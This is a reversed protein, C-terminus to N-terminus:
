LLKDMTQEMVKRMGADPMTGYMAGLNDAVHHAKTTGPIPCTAAPHSIIYKLFIQGWSEANIEPAWAPLAQGKVASFLKGNGFPRNVLVAIGKEQALPLLREEAARDAMSYNVQIFDLEHERMVSEIDDHQAVRHTTVGVYRFRGGSKWEQMQPLQEETGRLNHVQMLEIPSGLREFSGEMREIGDSADERDVKTAMFVKDRIGLKSLLHGLVEESNGYNPSTDLLSGGMEHFMKLTERLPQMESSTVDGRYRNTGLGVCPVQQGTSPITMTHATGKAALLSQWPALMAFAGGAVSASLWERRSYRTKDFRM